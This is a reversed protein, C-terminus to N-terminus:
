ETDAIWWGSSDRYGNRIMFPKVIYYTGIGSLTHNALGSDNEAKLLNWIRQYIVEEVECWAEFVEDNWPDDEDLEHMLAGVHNSVVAHAAAITKEDNVSEFWELAEAPTHNALPEQHIIYM